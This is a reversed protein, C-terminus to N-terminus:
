RKREEFHIIKARLAEFTAHAAPVDVLNRHVHAVGHLTEEFSRGVPLRVALLNDFMGLTRQLQRHTRGHLPVNLLVDDGAGLEHLAHAYAGLFLETLSM